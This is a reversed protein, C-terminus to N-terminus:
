PASEQSEEKHSRRSKEAPDKWPKIVFRNFLKASFAKNTGEFQDVLVVKTGDALEIPENLPAGLSMAEDLLVGSKEFLAKGKASAKLHRAIRNSIKRRHSKTM